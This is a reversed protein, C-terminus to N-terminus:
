HHALTYSPRMYSVASRSPASSLPVPSRAMSVHELPAKCVWPLLTFSRSLVFRSHKICQLEIQNSLMHLQHVVCMSAEILDHWANQRRARIKLMLDIHLQQLQLGCFESKECCESKRFLFLHCCSKAHLLQNQAMSARASHVRKRYFDNCM